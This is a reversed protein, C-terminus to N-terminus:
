PGGIVSSWALRAIAAASSSAIFFEQCTAMAMRSEPPLRTINWLISLVCSEAASAACPLARVASCNLRGLLASSSAMAAPPEQRQFVDGREFAAQRDHDVAGDDAGDADGARERRLVALDGFGGGVREGLGPHSGTGDGQPARRPAGLRSPRRSCRGPRMRRPGGYRTSSARLRASPPWRLIVFCCGGEARMGGRCPICNKGISESEISAAPMLRRPNTPSRLNAVM